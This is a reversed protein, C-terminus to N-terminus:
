YLAAEFLKGGSDLGKVEADCGCVTARREFLLSVFRRNM